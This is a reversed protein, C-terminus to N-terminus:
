KKVEKSLDGSMGYSIIQISNHKNLPVVATMNSDYKEGLYISVPLSAMQSVALGLM